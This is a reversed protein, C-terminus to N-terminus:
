KSDNRGGEEVTIGLKTLYSTIEEPTVDQSKPYKGTKIKREKVRKGARKFVATVDLGIIGIDRQYEMDPIELYEKIGFSFHNNAIKKKRIKNNVAGFLRKLLKEAEEGRLTVMCGTKLGPRVGFTPIRKTSSIEKIKRGTLVSLLKVSRQLKDEVGGCNLVMKELRPIRMVNENKPTKNSQKAEVQKKTKKEAM